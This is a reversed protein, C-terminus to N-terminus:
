SSRDLKKAMTGVRISMKRLLRLCVPWALACLNIALTVMLGVAFIFLKTLRKLAAGARALGLVAVTGPTRKGAVESIRVLETADRRNKVHKLLFITDWPRTHSSVTGLNGVIDGIEELHHVETIANLDRTRVFEAINDWRIPLIVKRLILRLENTLTGMRRAVKLVTAGIKITYSTSGTAPALATAGLGVVALAVDVRDVRKGTVADSGSKVLTKVDGLPSLEFPVSCMLFITPTKCEAPNVLCPPCQRAKAVIGTEKNVFERARDTHSPAVPIRHHEVLELLLEARYLDEREVARDLEAASWAPTM